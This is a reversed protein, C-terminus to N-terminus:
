NQEQKIRKPSRSKRRSFMDNGKLGFYRESVILLILGLVFPYLVLFTIDRGMNFTLILGCAYLIARGPQRWSLLDQRALLASWLAMLFAAFIPGYFRGFNNVGQGIMGTSITATVLNKSNLSSQGRAIAYDYGILPKNKWLVRPIPNVLEAFYSRGGTPTYQGTEIFQNTWALEEYMNLGAHRSDSMDTYSKQVFARAVSSENRSAMVFTFWFNVVMFGGALLLIKPALGGRFRLCIWALFGPIATALMANRTRHFLYYPFALLCIVGAIIRMRTDKLLAFLVGMTATLFIQLYAALSFLADM